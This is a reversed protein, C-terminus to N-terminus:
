FICILFLKSCKNREATLERNQQKPFTWSLKLCSLVGYTQSFILLIKNNVSPCKELLIKLPICFVLNLNQATGLVSIRRKKVDATFSYVSFMYRNFIGLSLVIFLVVCCYAGTSTAYWFASILVCFCASMFLLMGWENFELRHIIEKKGVRHSVGIDFMWMMTHVCFLTEVTM